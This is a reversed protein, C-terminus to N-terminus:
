DTVYPNKVPKIGLCSLLNGLHDFTKVLLSMFRHRGMALAFPLTAVYVPVAIVSKAIQLARFTPHLQAVTGRLLAKRLMFKGRWRAPPVVEYAVAESCWVFRFGREIMRRFFDQDEGTRFEPRFPQGRLPFIGRKMLVNGTRGKRWDIAFGTSYSPRDFLKSKLVWTPPTQEFFPKVPGLVGDVGYENCANFLTLLWGRSPFEDDDIFAIFDGCANELAKNRALAINQQPEVCYKIPIPSAAAFDSVVAEASRLHDNDAVVISYTFLGGTEQRALERLLRQLFEPRRYTCVCVCIHNTANAVANTPSRSVSPIDLALGTSPYTNGNSRVAYRPAIRCGETWCFIERGALFHYEEPNVPHVGVEVVFRRALSFMKHLEDPPYVRGRKGLSFFFDTVRHRRALLRDVVQRYFRNAWSKEGPMFSFSRRVITGRPLLGGLLVNSCLHMHHEGDLREPKAGYLRQFEEYQASVVYEFSRVLGPHFVVQSYLHRRLFRSIRRQHAILQTPCHPASFPTTFNIHLGADIKRERAMAAARESDEMFVMASVSSVAGCLICELTRNTIDRELGWDDANVILIGTQEFEDPKVRPHGAL